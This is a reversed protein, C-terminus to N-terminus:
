RTQAVQPTHHMGANAHGSKPEEDTGGAPYATQKEGVTDVASM